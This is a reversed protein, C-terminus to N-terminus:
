THCSLYRRAGQPILSGLPMPLPGRFSLPAPAKPVGREEM